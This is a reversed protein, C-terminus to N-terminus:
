REFFGFHTNATGGLCALRRLGEEEEKQRVEWWEMEVALSSAWGELGRKLFLVEKSYCEHLPEKSNGIRHLREM